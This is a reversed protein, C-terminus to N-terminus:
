TSIQAQVWECAQRGFELVPEFEIPQMSIDPQNKLISRLEEISEVILGNKYKSHFSRLKEDRAIIIYPIGLGYAIIAGHLRSTIVLNSSCYYNKIIHELGCSKTQINNTIILNPVTEQLVTRITRLEAVSVIQNHFSYLISNKQQKHEYFDQLYVISPCATISANKLNYYHATLEDRINILSCRQAVASVITKNVGRKNQRASLHRFGV